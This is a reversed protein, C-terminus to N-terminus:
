DKGNNFSFSFSLTFRNPSNIACVVLIFTPKQSHFSLNNHIIRSTQIGSFHSVRRQALGTSGLRVHLTMTTPVTSHRKRRRKDYREAHIIVPFRIPRRTPLPWPTGVISPGKTLPQDIDVSQWPSRDARPSCEWAAHNFVTPM